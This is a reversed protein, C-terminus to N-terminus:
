AGPRTLGALARHREVMTGFSYREAVRARNLEGLRRRLDASGCLRALAAALTADTSADLRAVFEAQEPPLMVRVDGVDTALVPLGSAMAELLAIPMQETDSPLAFVDMARYHERPDSHYGVLHVRGALAPSRALEELRAREPGDGLVLAHVDLRPALQALAALLRPVNKEPRLHGVAGVVLASRPIGLRERLATNGDAVRFREVEIGNPVFHLRQEPVRWLERAIRRLNESIVVVDVDGRLALRRLWIRRRKFGHAEDPLFGDEHHVVKLGLSRAALVGDLAGFNYTLVREPELRALEKRLRLLTALSGAKPPPPVFEVALGPALLTRADTRGDMAIVTHRASAGWVELLRVTRVQPGAPVFTSFVHVLHPLAVTM